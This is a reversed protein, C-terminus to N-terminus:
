ASKVARPGPPDEIRTPMAAFQRVFKSGIEVVRDLIKRGGEVSSLKPNGMVGNQTVEDFDLYVHVPVGEFTAVSSTQFPVGGFGPVPAAEMLDARVDEPFSAMALSGMPDSGHGIPAKEDGYVERKFAPTLWAWPEITATRLRHTERLRRAVQEIIPLNGKHCCVFLLHDLGFRTFGDCLDQLLLTLTEPRLSLTGPFPRFYDSYGWPVTPAAIAGTREAIRKAVIAAYRYDGVPVHPGHQEISGLPLLIVPNKRFAEEAERWTMRCLEVKPM